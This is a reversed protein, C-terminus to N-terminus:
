STVLVTEISDEDRTIGRRIVIRTEVTLSM